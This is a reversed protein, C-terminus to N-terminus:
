SCEVSLGTSNFPANNSNTPVYGNGTLDNLENGANDNYSGLRNYAEDKDKLTQNQDEYCFATSGGAYMQDVDSQTYHDGITVRFNYLGISSYSDILAQYGLYFPETSSYITHDFAEQKVLVSDIYVKATLVGALDVRTVCIHYWQDEDPSFSTTLRNTASQGTTTIDFKLENTSPEQFLYYDRKPDIGGIRYKSFIYVHSNLENFKVWFAFGFEQNTLNFSDGYDVRQDIGNLNIANVPFRPAEDCEVALGSNFPADNVNDLVWGNVKDTLAQLETSGNYTANDFWADFKNYLTPNDTEVYDATLPNGNNYLYEADSQTFAQGISISIFKAVNEWQGYGAWNRKGWLVPLSMDWNISNPNGSLPSNFVKDTHEEGNIYCHLNSLNNGLRDWYILIHKDEGTWNINQFKINYQNGLTIFQFILDKSTGGIFIEARSTNPSTTSESEYKRYLTTASSGDTWSSVAITNLGINLRSASGQLELYQTSGDLNIANAPFLQTTSADTYVYIQQGTLSPLPSLTINNGSRDKFENGSFSIDETFSSCYILGSRQATTMADYALVGVQGNIDVYHEAVESETLERNYVNFQAMNYEPSNGIKATTPSSSNPYTMVATGLLVGNEYLRIRGNIVSGTVTLHVWENTSISHSKTLVTNGGNSNGIVVQLASSLISLFQKPLGEIYPIYTFGGTPKLYVWYMFTFESLGAILNSSLEINTASASVDASNYLGNPSIPTKPEEDALIGAITFM